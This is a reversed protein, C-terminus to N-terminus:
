VFPKYEKPSVARFCRMIIEPKEKLNLRFNNYEKIDEFYVINFVGINKVSVREDASNSATKPNLTDHFIILYRRSKSINKEQKQKIINFCKELSM